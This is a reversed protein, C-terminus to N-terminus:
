DHPPRGTRINIIMRGDCVKCEDMIGLLYDEVKGLGQCRPCVQWGADYEGHNRPNDPCTNCYMGLFGCPMQTKVCKTTTEKSVTKLKLLLM